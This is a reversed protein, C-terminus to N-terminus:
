QINPNLLLYNGHEPGPTDTWPLENLSFYLRLGTPTIVGNGWAPFLRPDAAKDKFRSKIYYGEAVPTSNLTFSLGDLSTFEFIGFHDNKGDSDCKLLGCYIRVTGAKDILPCRLWLSHWDSCFKGGDIRVGEERTWQLGDKSVASLLVQRANPVSTEGTYYMRYSGDMLKAVHPASIGIEENGTGTGVLREGPEVAFDLGNSSFASMFVLQQGNNWEFYMRFNGSALQIVYPGRGSNLRIGPELYFHVGDDSIYSMMAALYEGYIRIKGDPLLIVSQM